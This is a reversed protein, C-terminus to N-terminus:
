PDAGAVGQGLFLAHQVADTVGDGAGLRQHDLGGAVGQTVGVAGRHGTIQAAHIFGHDALGVGGVAVAAMQEAAVLVGTLREHAGGVAGDAIDAIGIGALLADIGGPQHLHGVVALGNELAHVGAGAIHRFRVGAVAAAQRELARLDDIFAVRVEAVAELDFERDGAAGGGVRHVAARRLGIFLALRHFHAAQRDRELALGGVAVANLHAFRLVHVGVQELGELLRQRHKVLRGAVVGLLRGAGVGDIGDHALEIVAQVIHQRYARRHARAQVFQIHDVAHGVVALEVVGFGVGVQDAVQAIGGVERFHHGLVAQTLDAQLGCLLGEDVDLAHRQEIAHLNTPAPQPLPSHSRAGGAFPHSGAM